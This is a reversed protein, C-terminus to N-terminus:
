AMARVMVTLAMAALFAACSLFLTLAWGKPVEALPQEPLSAFSLLIRAVADSPPKTPTTFRVIFSLLLGGIAVAAALPPLWEPPFLYVAAVGAASAIAISKGLHIM